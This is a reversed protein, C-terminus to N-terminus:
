MSYYDRFGIPFLYVLEQVALRNARSCLQAAEATSVQNEGRISTLICAGLGQTCSVSLGGILSCVGIYPMMTRHGWRPAAFAALFVALAIVVSGYSLFGPGLFLKKFEVITSVSQEEPANLALISAGLICQISGIWGFLSLKEKLIFHSLIACIVVSLAGMPTQLNANVSLIRNLKHYSAGCCYSRRLRVGRLQM